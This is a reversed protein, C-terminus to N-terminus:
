TAGVERVAVLFPRTLVTSLHIEKVYLSKPKVYCLRVSNQSHIVREKVSYIKLAHLNCFLEIISQQTLQRISPHISKLFAPMKESDFPCADCVVGGDEGAPRDTKPTEPDHSHPTRVPLDPELKPRATGNSKPVEKAKM